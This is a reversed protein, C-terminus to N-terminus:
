TDMQGIDFDIRLRAGDFDEVVHSDVVDSRDYIREQGFPLNVAAHDLSDCLGQVLLGTVVGIVSLQHRTRQEIIRHRSCVGHGINTRQKM